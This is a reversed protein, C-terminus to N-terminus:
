RDVSGIGIDAGASASTSAGSTSRAHPPGPQGRPSGDAGGRGARWLDAHRGGPGPRLLHQLRTGAGAAGQPRRRPGRRPRGPHHRHRDGPAAVRHLHAGPLPGGAADSAAVPEGARGAQPGPLRNGRGRRGPAPYRVGGRGGPDGAAVRSRGAAKTSVTPRSRPFRRHACRNRTTGHYPHPRRNTGAPPEAGLSVLPSAPRDDNHHGIRHGCSPHRACMGAGDQPGHVLPAASRVV